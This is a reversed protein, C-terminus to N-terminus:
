ARERLEQEVMKKVGERAEASGHFSVDERASIAPYAYRSLADAVVNTPGPVYVVELDFQSLTEHWRARRGRPGSPTDVHETVWNQLSRHDTAVVVPQFGIHGAWKRLAAVIAYTEKERPTWNLQSGTLKRSFFGVPVLRTKGIDVQATREEDPHAQELVAGIAFGSADCRMVFPRDPDIQYLELQQALKQKLRAFAELDVPTWSIPARSGKKGEVRGVKLKEMLPAAFEAYHDVYESFYNCLGLFGRM